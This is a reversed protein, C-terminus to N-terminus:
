PTSEASRCHDIFARLKNPMQRRGPYYLHFGSLTPCIEPLVRLLRGAAIDASVQREFTYAIGIGDLAAQAMSISDSVTLPGNVEVEVVSGARLVEWRFIAGSGPFRYRICAHRHLSEIEQPLGHRAAYDPSAVIAIREARTLPVSVMDAQVSEGLRIGADYGGAVIDVFGDQLALEVKVGPHAALFGALVPRLWVQHVVMPANLRLLGTVGGRYADLGASADLLEAVAPSVRNFFHEGAETLSVSRTSRNLLRVGLREELQRVAQSVAPPTVELAAAAATFSRQRAVTVFALLGDLQTLKM